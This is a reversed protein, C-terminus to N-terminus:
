ITDEGNEESPDEALVFGVTSPCGDEACPMAAVVSVEAAVEVKALDGHRVIRMSLDLKVDSAMAVMSAAALAILIGRM